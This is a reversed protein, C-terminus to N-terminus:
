QQYDMDANNEDEHENEDEKEARPKMMGDNGDESVM